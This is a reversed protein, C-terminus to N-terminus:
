QADECERIGRCAPYQSCGWFSGGANEGRKATRRVMPSGCKPCGSATEPLVSSSGSGRTERVLRLMTDTPVLEISRGEAFRRAEETFDGSAVVFGGVAREATMVGYLERVKAVGVKTVKWQKCQVLYKDTGSKLELDVGGDPGNGGREVVQFGKRRFVEATLGEFERWSMSELANRNPTSAVQSHLESQRRRKYFSIGAGILFAIPVIYQLFLSITIMLQRGVSNGITQGYNKLDTAAFSPPPLTTLTHFGLYSVLALVVGAKWPLRSAIEILDEFASAKKRTM